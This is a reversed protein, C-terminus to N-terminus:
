AATPPSRPTATATGPCRGCRGPAPRPSSGSSAPRRPSWRPPSSAPPTSCGCTPAASPPATRGARRRHDGDGERPRRQAPLPAAQDPARAVADVPITMTTVGERARRRARGARRGALRVRDVFRRLEERQRPRAAGEARVLHALLARRHPLLRHHGQRRRPRGGRLHARLEDDTKFTGDENAAKSWPVRCRPRSTAPASRRSRRSTPRPSCGAPTSTPRACTSWTRRASPRSWTTASPASRRTRSRRPTAHDARAAARRQAAPPQRAGVEQPWRRAAQRRRPRLAQLVLVRLRRVLQQQRRLAGRHRRQRHGQASLLAEFQEKNVFDRRVQDQLDTKWDLKVAGPIHGGDYATTDEDVEVFVVGAADLNKEAWDASVLANERSM